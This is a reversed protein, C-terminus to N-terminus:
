QQRARREESDLAQRLMMKLYTQYGAKEAALTRARALDGEPLRITVASSSGVGNGRLERL